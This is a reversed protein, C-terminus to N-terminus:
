SAGAPDDEVCDVSVCDVGEVIVGEVVDVSGMAVSEDMDPEDDMFIVSSLMFAAGAAEASALSEM